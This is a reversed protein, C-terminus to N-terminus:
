ASAKGQAERLRWEAAAVHEKGFESRFKVIGAEVTWDQLGLETLRRFGSQIDGTKMLRKMAGLTGYDRRMRMFETPHYGCAAGRRILEDVFAELEQSAKQAQLPTTAIM